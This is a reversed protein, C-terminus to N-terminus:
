KQNLWGTGHIFNVGRPDVIVSGLQSSYVRPHPGGGLICDHGGPNHDMKLLSDRYVKIQWTHSPPPWM